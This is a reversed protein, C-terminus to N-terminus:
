ASDIESDHFFIARFLEHIQDVNAYIPYKQILLTLDCISPKTGFLDSFCPHIAFYDLAIKPSVMHLSLRSLHLNLQLM